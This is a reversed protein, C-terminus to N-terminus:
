PMIPVQQSNPDFGTITDSGDSYFLALAGNGNLTNSGGNGTVVSADLLPVGNGSLLNAVRTAYDDSSAWYAAIQQWTTLGAETDYATSGAILLDEGDGANLTSASAGAVLINRRGVGGYLRDGGAGILLNYVGNTAPSASGGYVTTIGSVSGGVGTASSTQLDVLVSSSYASYDLSDNGSGIIDGSLSAGDALSFTDGGSGATLNGVQIFLVNSAYATGSLTGSDSGTLAFHNGANSGVLTDGSGGGVITVAATASTALMTFTNGGTGANIPIAGLGAYSIIPGGWTLITDTITFTRSGTFSQDNLVLSDTAAASVTVGATIGALTSSSGGLIIVDAGSGSASNITLPSAISQVAVSDVGSGTNLTTGQSAPSGTITYSTNGSGGSLTLASIGSAGFNIPGM